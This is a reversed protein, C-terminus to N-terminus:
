AAVPLESVPVVSFSSTPVSVAVSISRCCGLVGLDPILRHPREHKLTSSLIVWLVMRLTSPEENKCNSARACALLAQRRKAPVPTRGLTVQSSSDPSFGLGRFQCSSGRWLCCTMRQKLNALAADSQFLLQVRLPDDRAITTHRGGLIRETGCPNVSM